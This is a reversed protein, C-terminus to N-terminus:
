RFSTKGDFLYSSTSIRGRADFLRKFDPIRNLYARARERTLLVRLRRECFRIVLLLAPALGERRFGEPESSSTPARSQPFSPSILQDVCFLFGHKIAFNTLGPCKWWRM